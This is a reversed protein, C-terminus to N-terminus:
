NKRGFKFTMSLQHTGFTGKIGTLPYIMAYDFQLSDWRYSFGISTVQYQRQGFGLGGRIGFGGSLWREGGMNFRMEDGTFQRRSVEVDVSSTKTRRALGIKYIAAVKDTDATDLAMNPSNANLIAIGL